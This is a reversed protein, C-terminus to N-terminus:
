SAVSMCCTEALWHRTSLNNLLFFIYSAGILVQLQRVHDYGSNKIWPYVNFSSIVWILFLICVCDPTLLVSHLAISQHIFSVVDYNYSHRACVTLFLRVLFIIAKWNGGRTVYCVQNMAPHGSTECEERVASQYDINSFRRRVNDAARNHLRTQM